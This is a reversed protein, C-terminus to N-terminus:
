EEMEACRAEQADEGEAQRGEDDDQDLASRRGWRRHVM